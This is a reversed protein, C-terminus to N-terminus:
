GKRVEFRGYGCTEPCTECSGTRMGQRLRERLQRYSAGTWIEVFDQRTLDGLPVATDWHPCPNVLGDPDLYVWNSRVFSCVPLLRDPAKGTLDGGTRPLELVLGLRRAHARASKLCACTEEDEPDVVESMTDLGSFPVLPVVNVSGAGIGAAIGIIGELERLNRRQLTVSFRVIPFKARRNDRLRLLEKLWKLTDELDAGGRIAAHTRSEAGDVSVFLSTPPTELLAELVSDSFLTGNTVVERSPVDSQWLRRLYKPFDPNMFPEAGCSLGVVRARPFVQRNVREFLERSMEHWRRSPDEDSLQLNCM